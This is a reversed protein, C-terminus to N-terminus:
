NDGFMYNTFATPSEAILPLQLQAVRRNLLSAQAASLAGGDMAKQLYQLAAEATRGRQETLGRAV